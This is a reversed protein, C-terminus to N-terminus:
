SVGTDPNNLSLVLGSSGYGNRPAIQYWPSLLARVANSYRVKNGANIALQRLSASLTSKRKQDRPQGIVAGNGGLWWFGRPSLQTFSLQKCRFPHLVGANRHGDIDAIELIQM